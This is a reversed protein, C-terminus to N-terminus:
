FEEKPQPIEKPEPLALLYANARGITGDEARMARAVNEHYELWDHGKAIKEFLARAESARGALLLLNGTAIRSRSDDKKSLQDILALYAGGDITVSSLLGSPSGAAAGRRQERALRLVPKLNDPNAAQVCQTLLKLAKDTNGMRSVNFLAKALSLAEQPKRAALFARVRAEQFFELDDVRDASTLIACKCFREILNYHGADQLPKLWFERLFSISPEPDSQLRKEIAAVAQAFVNIDASALREALVEPELKEEEEAVVIRGSLLCAPVLFLVPILNPRLNM